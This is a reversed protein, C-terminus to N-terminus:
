HLLRSLLALYMGSGIWFPGINGRDPDTGNRSFDSVIAKFAVCQVRKTDSWYNSLICCVGPAALRALRELQRLLEMFSDVCLLQDARQLWFDL